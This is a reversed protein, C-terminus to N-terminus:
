PAHSRMLKIIVVGSPATSYSPTVQGRLQREAARLRASFLRYGGAPVTINLPREPTASTIAARQRSFFYTGLIRAAAKRSVTFTQPALTAAPAIGENAGHAVSASSSASSSNSKLDLHSIGVGLAVLAAAAGAWAAVPRWRPFSPLRLRRRRRSDARVEAMVSPLLDPPASAQGEARLRRAIDEHEHESV